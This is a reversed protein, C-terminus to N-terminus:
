RETKLAGGGPPASLWAKQPRRSFHGLRADRGDRNDSRQEECLRAAPTGHDAAVESHHARDGRYDRGAAQAARGRGSLSLSSAPVFRLRALPEARRRIVGRQGGTIQSRRETTAGQGGQYISDNSMFM